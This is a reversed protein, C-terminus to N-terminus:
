RLRYQVLSGDRGELRVAVLRGGTDYWAWRKYDPSADILFGDAVVEKGAAMIPMSGLATVQTPMADGRLTGLLTTQRVTARNWLSTPILGAPVRSEVGNHTVRFGDGDARATLRHPTGDDDTEADLAILRDGEWVEHARHTFRYVTIFAVAVRISVDTDVILRGDERAFRIRHSGIEAENREVGFDLTTGPTQASAAAPAALLALMVFAGLAAAAIRSRVAAHRMALGGEAM